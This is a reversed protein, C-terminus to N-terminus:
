FPYRISEFGDQFIVEPCQIQSFAIFLASFTDAKPSHIYGPQTVLRDTHCNLRLNRKIKQKEEPTLAMLREQLPSMYKPENPFVAQSELYKQLATIQKPDDSFANIFQIFVERQEGQLLLIILEDIRQQWSLSRYEYTIIAALGAKAAKERYDAARVDDGAMEFCEAAREYEFRSPNSPNGWFNRIWRNAAELFANKVDETQNPLDRTRLLQAHRYALVKTDWLSLDTEHSFIYLEEYLNLTHQIAEHFRPDIRVEPMNESLKELLETCHAFKEVGNHLLPYACKIANKILVQCLALAHAHLEYDFCLNLIDVPRMYDTTSQTRWIIRGGKLHIYGLTYLDIILLLRQDKNERLTQAIRLYNHTLKRENFEDYVAFFISGIMPILLLIGRGLHQWPQIDNAAKWATEYQPFFHGQTILSYSYIVLKYVALATGYAIHAIGAFSSFYLENRGFSSCRHPIYFDINNVTFVRCKKLFLFKGCYIAIKCYLIRM